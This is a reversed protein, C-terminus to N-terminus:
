KTPRCALPKDEAPTFCTGVLEKGDHTFSCADDAQKGECAELAEKPPRPHEGRPPGKGPSPEALAQLSCSLIIAASLYSIKM